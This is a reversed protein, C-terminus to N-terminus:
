KPLPLDPDLLQIMPLFPNEGPPFQIKEIGTAIPQFQAVRGPV